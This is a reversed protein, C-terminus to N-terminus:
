LETVTQRGDARAQLLCGGRRLPEAVGEGTCEQHGQYFNHGITVEPFCLGRPSELKMFYM